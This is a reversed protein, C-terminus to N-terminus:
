KHHNNFIIIHTKYFFCLLDSYSRDLNILHGMALEAVAIANKGPCNAVFIGMNSAEDVAITNVGAGARVVLALSSSALLHEKTIKTSRVVIINPQFKNMEEKLSDGNLSADWVVECGNKKLTEEVFPGMKDALLVRSKSSSSEEKKEDDNRSQSKQEKTTESM